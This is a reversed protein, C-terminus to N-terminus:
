LLQLHKTPRLKCNLLPEPITSGVFGLFESSSSAALFRSSIARLSLTSDTNAPPKYSAMSQISDFLFLQSYPRSQNPSAFINTEGSM